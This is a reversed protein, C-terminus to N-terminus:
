EKPFSRAELLSVSSVFFEPHDGFEEDMKQCLRNLDHWTASNVAPLEMSVVRLCHDNFLSFSEKESEELMWLAFLVSSSVMALFFVFNLLQAEWVLTAGFGFSTLFLCLVFFLTPNM